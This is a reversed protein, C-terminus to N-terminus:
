DLQGVDCGVMLYLMLGNENWFHKGTKIFAQGGEWGM